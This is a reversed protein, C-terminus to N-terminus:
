FTSSIFYVLIIGIVLVSVIFTLLILKEAPVFYDHEICSKKQYYSVTSLILIFLGILCVFIGLLLAIIDVFENRPNKLTFHLSTALFGIGLLSVATRIWALFTRENALHQQAKSLEFKRAHSELFIVVMFFM